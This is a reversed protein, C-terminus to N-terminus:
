LRVGHSRNRSERHRSTSSRGALTSVAKGVQTAIAKAKEKELEFYERDTM